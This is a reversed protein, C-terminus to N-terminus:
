LCAGVYVSAAILATDCRSFFLYKSSAHVLIANGYNGASTNTTKIFQTDIQWVATYLINRIDHSLQLLLQLLRYHQYLEKTSPHQNQM